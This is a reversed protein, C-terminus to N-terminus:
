PICGGVARPGPYDNPLPLELVKTLAWDSNCYSEVSRFRDVQEFYYFPRGVEQETNAVLRYIVFDVLAPDIFSAANSLDRRASIALTEVKGKWRAKVFRVSAVSQEDDFPEDRLADEANQSGDGEFTVLTWDTTSKPRLMLVSYVGYGHANMNERWAYIVEARHKQGDFNPIHNVGRVLRLPKIDALAQHPQEAACVGTTGTLMALAVATARIISDM